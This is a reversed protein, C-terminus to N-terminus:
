WWLIMLLRWHFLNTTHNKYKSMKEFLYTESIFAINPVLLEMVLPVEPLFAFVVSWFVFPLLSALQLPLEVAAATHSPVVVFSTM